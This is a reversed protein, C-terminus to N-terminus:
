NNWFVHDSNMDLIGEYRMVKHKFGNPDEVDRCGIRVLGLASIARDVSIAAESTSENHWIDVKYRVYSKQEGEDTREMVRNDEEVYQIAPFVKWDRPYADTVNDTVSLLAAGIQDKVNKM